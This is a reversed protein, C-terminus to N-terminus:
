RLIVFGLKTIPSNQLVPHSFAFRALSVLTKNDALKAAITTRRTAFTVCCPIRFLLVLWHCWSKTIPSNQPVPHPYAFRALSVLTKNDTLKAAITMRRTACTVCCPIRFLLVLWHCWTKNDALKAAITTRRTAFTVCCPTRILLVLWHYQM